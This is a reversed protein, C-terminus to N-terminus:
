EDIAAPQRWERPLASEPVDIILRDMAISRVARVPIYLPRSLPNHRGPRVVIGRIPAPVSAEQTGYDRRASQTTPGSNGIELTPFPGLEEGIGATQQGSDAAQTTEIRSSRPAESQEGTVLDIVSGIYASQDADYVDMGRRIALHGPQSRERSM